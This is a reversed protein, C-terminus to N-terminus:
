MFKTSQSSFWQCLPVFMGIVKFDIKKKTDCILSFGPRRLWLKGYTGGQHM